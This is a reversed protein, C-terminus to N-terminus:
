LVSVAEPLDVFYMSVDGAEAHAKGDPGSAGIQGMLGPEGMGGAGVICSYTPEDDQECSSESPNARYKNKKKRKKHEAEAFVAMQVAPGRYTKEAQRLGVQMKEVEWKDMNVTSEKAKGVIASILVCGPLAVALAAVALAAHLRPRRPRRNFLSM